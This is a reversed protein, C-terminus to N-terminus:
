RQRELDLIRGALLAVQASLDALRVLCRREAERAAEAVALAQDANEKAKAVEAQLQSITGNALGVLREATQAMVDTGEARSKRRAVIATLAVPLTGAAFGSLVVVFANV